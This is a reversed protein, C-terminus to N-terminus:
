PWSFPTKLFIDGNISSSMIGSQDNFFSEHWVSNAVDFYEYTGKISMIIEELYEFYNVDRNYM